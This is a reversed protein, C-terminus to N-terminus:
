VEAGENPRDNGAGDENAREDDAVGDTVAEALLGELAEARDVEGDSLVVAVEAVGQGIFDLQAFAGGGCREQAQAAGCYSAALVVLAASGANL